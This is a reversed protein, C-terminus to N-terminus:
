CKLLKCIYFADTTKTLKIQEEQIIKFNKQLLFKRIIDQNEEKLISCTAYVMQGNRKLYNSCTNLIDLQIQTIINLNEEKRQWKIDPKRKIVGLGLCPVDLLIKDFRENLNEDKQTADKVQAKIIDVGLRKANEEVLKVRHEHIDWAIIEGKNQMFEALYTTKGGPASCADLVTENPQPKLIQVIRGAGEDQVTCYGKKFLDFQSLEKMGKLYVFEKLNAEEYEIQKQKLEEIFKDRDIKLSNIRISLKPHGNSFQIIEEAEEKGYEQILKKVMWVPFSYQKSLREEINTIQKLEEYDQKDVRRLIANVFNVSKFGYKKTLNVCENVAASKPIKDLFVIQEIGIRLINKIWTSIKNLKIKSYKSLITDITLKWTTTGYVLESILNIDRSKLKERYREIYKDLIVNSYANKSDIEFLIKLAIERAFDIKM